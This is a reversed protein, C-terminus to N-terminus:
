FFFTLILFVQKYIRIHHIVLNRFPLIESELNIPRVKEFAKGLLRLQLIASVIFFYFLCDFPVLCFWVTYFLTFVEFLITAILVISNNELHKRDFPLWTRIIQDKQYIASLIYLFMTVFVVYHFFLINRHAHNLQLLYENKNEPFTGEDWFFDVQKLISIIKKKQLFLSLLKVILQLLIIKMEERYLILFCRGTSYNYLKRNHISFRGPFFQKERTRICYSFSIFSTAWM